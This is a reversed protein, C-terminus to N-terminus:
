GAIFPRREQGGVSVAPERFAGFASDHHSRGRSRVARAIEGAAVSPTASAVSDRDTRSRCIERTPKNTPRRTPNHPRRGVRELRKANSRGRQARSVAKVADAAYRTARMQRHGEPAEQRSSNLASDNSHEERGRGGRCGGCRGTRLSVFQRSGTVTRERRGICREQNGMRAVSRGRTM